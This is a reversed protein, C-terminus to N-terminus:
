VRFLVLTTRKPQFLSQPPKTPHKCAKMYLHQLLTQFCAVLDQHTKKSDDLPRGRFLLRQRFRNPLGHLMNLRQKLARVDVVEELPIKVVAEGSLLMRIGAYRQFVFRHVAPLRNLRAACGVGLAVQYVQNSYVHAVASTDISVMAAFALFMNWTAITGVVM